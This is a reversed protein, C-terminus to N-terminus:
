YNLPFILKEVFATFLLRSYYLYNHRSSSRFIIWYHLVMQKLLRIHSFYALGLVPWIKSGESICKHICKEGGFRRFNNKKVSLKSIHCWIEIKYVQLSIKNYFSNFLLILSNKSCYVMFSNKLFNFVTQLCWLSLDIWFHWDDNQGTKQTTSSWWFIRTEMESM